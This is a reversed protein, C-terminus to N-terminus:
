SLSSSAPKLAKRKSGGGGLHALQGLSFKSHVAQNDLAVM